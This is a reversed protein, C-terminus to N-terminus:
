SSGRRAARLRRAQMPDIRLPRYIEVRDGDRLAHDRRVKRGHIGVPASDLDLDPVARNLDCARLATAVTAGAALLVERLYTGQQGAYAIEIRMKKDTPM